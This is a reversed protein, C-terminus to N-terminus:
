AVSVRRGRLAQRAARLHRPYTSIDYPSRIKVSPGGSRSVARVAGMAEVVELLLVLREASAGM